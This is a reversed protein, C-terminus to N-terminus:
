LPSPQSLLGRLGQNRHAAYMGLRVMTRHNLQLTVTSNALSAQIRQKGTATEYLYPQLRHEGQKDVLSAVLPHNAKSSRRLVIAVEGNDLEVFTGPPYMGLSQILCHAVEDQLDLGPPTDVLARVTDAMNRGVRYKRPSIMAAYRDITNLIRTLRESPPQQDLSRAILPMSHHQAVVELWLKDSVFLRELLAQSEMPHRAIIEQQAVSPRERQEALLDQLATMSINMTLAAHVLSNREAPPLNLEKSLVHCLTACVLAHSASYGMTSNSALQFMLYLAADIDHAVLDQIWQDVQLVKSGFDHVKKPHLLLLSLASELDSWLGLLDEHEGDSLVHPSNPASTSPSM